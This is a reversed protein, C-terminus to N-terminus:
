KMHLNTLLTEIMLKQTAVRSSLDERVTTRVICANVGLLEGASRALTSKPPFKLAAFQYYPDSISNNLASVLSNSLPEMDTTPYYIITNGYSSTKPNNYYDSNEQLSVLHTVRYDKLASWIDQALAGNPTATRDTPFQRDLNIGNNYLTGAAVAQKSAEPIVLLTGRTIPYETFLKAAEVGAPANGHTGGVLLTAPGPQYSKIIYMPTADATGNALMTSTVTYPAPDQSGQVMYLDSLVTNVMKNQYNVRNILTDKTTTRFIFSKVGFLDGAARALTTKAPWKITAFQYYAGAIDKNLTDTIKTSLKEGTTLPYYTITNGYSTNATNKYFNLNEQMSVLHTVGYSRVASWIDRALPGNASETSTSPFQRDLNYGNVSAVGADLAMKDAEPIVLLTGRPIPFQTFKKASEASAPENGHVGGVLMVTPGPNSSSVVYMSTEQATGAALTKTQFTLKNTAAPIPTPTGSIITQGASPLMNLRSLFWDALRTQLQLREALTEKQVTEFIFSNIGYLDGTSRAFSGGVPWKLLKFKRYSEPISKNIYNVASTGLNYGDRNPHYIISQGVSDSDASSSYDIGEHLDFHWQVNYDKALQLLPEVLPHGAGTGSKSPFARNLDGDATIFRRSADVAQINTEPIVILTGQTIKYTKLLHAAEFGATENGHVGGSYMVTPGPVNSKIIYVPTEYKTGPLLFKIDVTNFITTNALAISNYFPLMFMSAVITLCALIRTMRSKLKM